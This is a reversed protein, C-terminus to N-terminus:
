KRQLPFSLLPRKLNAALYYPATATQRSISEQITNRPLQICISSVQALLSLVRKRHFNNRAFVLEEILYKQCAGNSYATQIVGVSLSSQLGLIKLHKSIFFAFLAAM